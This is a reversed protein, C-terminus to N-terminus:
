WEKIKMAHHKGCDKCKFEMEINGHSGCLECDEETASMTIDKFDYLRPRRNGCKIKLQSIKIDNDSKPEDKMHRVKTSLKKQM